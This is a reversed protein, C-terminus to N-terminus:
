GAPDQTQATGQGLGHQGWCIGSSSGVWRGLHWSLVSCCRGPILSLPTDSPVTISNRCSSVARLTRGACVDALLHKRGVPMCCACSLFSSFILHPAGSLAKGPVPAALFAGEQLLINNWQGFHRSKDQQPGGMHMGWAAREECGQGRGMSNNKHQQEQTAKRKAMFVGIALPSGGAERKRGWM